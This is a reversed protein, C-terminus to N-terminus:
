GRMSFCLFSFWVPKLINSRNLYIRTIERVIWLKFLTIDGVTSGADFFVHILDANTFQILRSVIKLVLVKKSYNRTHVAKGITFYRAQTKAGKELVHTKNNCNSKQTRHRCYYIWLVTYNIVLSYNTSCICLLLINRTLAHWWSNSFSTKRMLRMWKVALWWRRWHESLERRGEMVLILFNHLLLIDSVVPCVFSNLNRGSSICCIM